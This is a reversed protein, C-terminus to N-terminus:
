QIVIIQKLTYDWAYLVKGVPDFGLGYSSTSTGYNVLMDVYPTASGPNCVFYVESRSGKFYLYDATRASIDGRVRVQLSIDTKARTFRTRRPPYGTIETRAPTQRARRRPYTEFHARRRPYTEFHARSDNQTRDNHRGGPGMIKAVPPGM